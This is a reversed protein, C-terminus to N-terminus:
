PKKALSPRGVEVGRCHLVEKACAAIFTCVIAEMSNLRRAIPDHEEFIKVLATTPRKNLDRGIGDLVHRAMRGMYKETLKTM